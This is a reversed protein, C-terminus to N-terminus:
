NQVDLYNINLRECISIKELTLPVFPENENNFSGICTINGEDVHFILNHEPDRYLTLEPRLTWYYNIILYILESPIQLESTIEKLYLINNICECIYDNHLLWDM